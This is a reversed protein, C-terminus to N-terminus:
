AEFIFPQESGISPLPTANGERPIGGRQHLLQLGPLNERFPVSRVMKKLEGYDESPEAQRRRDAAIETCKV